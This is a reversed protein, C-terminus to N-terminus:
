IAKRLALIMSVVLPVATLALFVVGYLTIQSYFAWWSTAALFPLVLIGLGCPIVVYWHFFRMMCDIFFPIGIALATWLLPVLILLTPDNATSWGVARLGAGPILWLLAFNAFDAPGSSSVRFIVFFLYVLLPLLVPLVVIDVMGSIWRSLGFGGPEIFSGTLFQVLAVASGLILAWVAGSGTEGVLSRRFLYFLPMWLFCFVTM